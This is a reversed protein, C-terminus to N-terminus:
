RIRDMADNRSGGASRLVAYRYWMGGGAPKATEKNVTPKRAESVIGERDMCTQKRLPHQRIVIGDICPTHAVNLWVPKRRKTGM